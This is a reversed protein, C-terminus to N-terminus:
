YIMLGLIAVGICAAAALAIAIIRKNRKTKKNESYRLYGQHPSDNETFYSSMMRRAEEQLRDPSLSGCDKVIFLAKEFMDSGTDNIEIIRKNVGRLM